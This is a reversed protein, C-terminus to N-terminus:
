QETAGVLLSSSVEPARITLLTCLHGQNQVCSLFLSMEQEERTFVSSIVVVYLSSFCSSRGPAPSNTSYTSCVKMPPYCAAGLAVLATTRRIWFSGQKFLILLAHVQPGELIFWVGHVMQFQFPPLQCLHM